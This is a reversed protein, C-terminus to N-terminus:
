LFSAGPDGPVVRLKGAARAAANEALVDVLSVRATGPRLDLNVQPFAGHCGALACTPTFVRDQIVQLTDQGDCTEICTSSCGDADAANGDDCQEGPDKVGDGCRPLRCDAHCGDGDIANGDDCEEGSEADVHGDGCRAPLPHLRRCRLDCTSTGPPECEETASADVVGDGCATPTAAFDKRMRRRGRLRGQIVECDASVALAIKMRGLGRCPPFTAHVMWGGKKRSRSTTPASACGSEVRVGTAALVVAELTTPDGGEFLPAAADRVVYRGLCPPVRAKAAVPPALLGLVAVTVAM